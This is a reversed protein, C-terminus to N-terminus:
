GKEKAAKVGSVRALKKGGESVATVALPTGDITIAYTRDYSLRKESAVPFIKAAGSAPIPTFVAPVRESLQKVIDAPMPAAFAVSFAAFALLAAAARKIARNFTM